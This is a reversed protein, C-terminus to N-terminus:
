VQKHALSYRLPIALKRTGDRLQGISISIVNTNIIFIPESEETENANDVNEPIFLSDDQYIAFAINGDDVDALIEPHIIVAASAHTDENTINEFENISLSKTNDDTLDDHVDGFFGFM